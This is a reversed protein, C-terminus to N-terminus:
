DAGFEIAQNNSRAFRESFMGCITSDTQWHTQVLVTVARAAVSLLDLKALAILVKLLHLDYV